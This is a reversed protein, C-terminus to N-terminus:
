EPEKTARDIKNVVMNSLKNFGTLILIFPWICICAIVVFNDIKGWSNRLLDPNFKGALITVYFGIVFWLVICLITIFLTIM